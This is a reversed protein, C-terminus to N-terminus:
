QEQFARPAQANREAVARAHLKQFMKEAQVAQERQGLRMYVQVLDFYLQDYEPRLAIAQKLEALAPQFRNLGILSEAIGKLALKDTPKINRAKRFNTLAGAYDGHKSLIDGLVDYADVLNPDMEIAQEAYPRAKQYNGINALQQGEEYALRANKPFRSAGNQAVKLAGQFNDQEQFAEIVLLYPGANGPERQIVETLCPIAKAVYHGALYQEGLLALIRPDDPAVQNAVRLREIAKQTENQNVYMVALLKNVEPSEPALSLAEDLEAEAHATQGLKLLSLGLDFHPEFNKPALQIAQEFPEVAQAYYGGEGLLVGTSDMIEPDQNASALVQARLSRILADQHRHVAEDLQLMKQISLQDVNKLRNAAALEERAQAPHNEKQDIRGLEYYLSGDWPAERLATEILERAKGLDGEDVYAEGLRKNTDYIAPGLSLVDEYFAAARRPQGLSQATRALFYCTYPNHPDLQHAKEFEAQASSWQDLKWLAYGLYHHISAQDPALSDAQRLLPIAESYHQVRFLVAAKQFLQQAELISNSSQPASLNASNGHGGAYNKVIGTEASGSALGEGVAARDGREWLRSLPLPHPRLQGSVPLVVLVAALVLEFGQPFLRM